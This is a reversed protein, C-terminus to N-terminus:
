WRRALAHQGDREAHSARGSTLTIVGRDSRRRFSERGSSGRDRTWCSSGAGAFGTAGRQAARVGRARERRLARRRAGGRGLAATDGLARRGLDGGLALPEDTSARERQERGRRLGAAGARGGWCQVLPTPAIGAAGRGAGGRLRSLPVAAAAFGGAEACEWAWVARAGAAGRRRAGRDGSPWRAAAGRSRLVPVGGSAGRRLWTDSRELGQDRASKRRIERRQTDERRPIRLVASPAPGDLSV